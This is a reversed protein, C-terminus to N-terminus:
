LVRIHDIKNKHIKLNESFLWEEMAMVVIILYTIYMEADHNYYIGTDQDCMTM